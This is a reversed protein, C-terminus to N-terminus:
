LFINSGSRMSSRTCSVISPLPFDGENKETVFTTTKNPLEEIPQHLYKILLDVITVLRRISVELYSSQEEAQKSM